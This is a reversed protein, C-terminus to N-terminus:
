EQREEYGNITAILQRVPGRPLGCRRECGAWHVPTAPARGLSRVWQRADARVDALAKACGPRGTCATVGAWPSDPDTVLGAAALAREIRDAEGPSGPSGPSGSSGPSGPSLDPLVVTRWPTLRVPRGLDALAGAQASTLRGLPVLAEIAVRGDRQAIRGASPRRAPAPSPPANAADAAQPADATHPAQPAEPADLANPANTRAPRGDRLRTAIAATGDPLDRIRWARPGDPSLEDLFAEAADIMLPVAADPAVTLGTDAGALLLRGTAAYTVDAGLGAVDRTGDDLAFLFRGPLAALRPRACLARDLADAMAQVDLLGDPGRGSLPSALINRVREHAPSPLLGAAAIRGAFVEPSRLGRVQVNARSTLEIVGAGLEAACGALVRLQAASVAGGPLRVRALPGDAAEHVQLAGPCADPRTRGSSEGVPM